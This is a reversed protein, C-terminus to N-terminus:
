EDARKRTVNSLNMGFRKIRAATEVERILRERSEYHQAEATERLEVDVDQIPPLKYRHKRLFVHEKIQSLARLNLTEFTVAPRGYTNIVYYVKHNHRGSIDVWVTIPTKFHSSVRRTMVPDVRWKLM